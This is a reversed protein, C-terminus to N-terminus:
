AGKTSSQRATKAKARVRRAAARGVWVIEARFCTLIALLATAAALYYGWRAISRVLGPWTFLEEGVRRVHTVRGGADVLWVDPNFISIDGDLMEKIARPRGEQYEVRDIDVLQERVWLPQRLQYIFRDLGVMEVLQPATGMVIDLRPEIEWRPGELTSHEPVELAFIRDFSLKDGSQRLVMLFETDNPFDNFQSLVYRDGPVELRAGQGGPWSIYSNIVAVNASQDWAARGLVILRPRNYNDQVLLLLSALLLLVLCTMRLTKPLVLLKFARKCFHRAKSMRM